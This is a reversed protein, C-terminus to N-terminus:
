AGHGASHRYVHGQDGGRDPPVKDEIEIGEIGIEDFMCSVLDVAATTTTLTFKHWKM